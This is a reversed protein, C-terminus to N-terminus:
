VAAIRRCRLSACCVIVCCMIIVCECPLSGGVGYCMYDNLYQPRRRERVPRTHERRQDTDSEPFDIDDVDDLFNGDCSTVEVKKFRSINRTINRRGNTSTIMDGKRKIVTEVDPYFPPEMGKPNRNSLLVKDGEEIDSEKVQRRKDTYSKMKEKSDKDKGELDNTKTQLLSPIETHINKGYLAQAPAIGTSSHPTARYQKLFQWLGQKWNKGQATSTHICKKLTRMFREVEGNAEPWEPTVKRHRFGTNLAFERFEKSQFPPGNDSKLVEPNGHTAFIKELALITVKASTSHVIEVAPYRSHDDVVVLLYENSNPIDKFDASVEKWPSDPCKTPKLPQRRKMPTASQCPMCNRVETEAMKDLGPFWVKSRLLNKTKEIGQHGIHALKITQDRLPEPIVIRGSRLIVGEVFSLEHRVNYFSKMEPDTSKQLSHLQNSNMLKCLEQLKSDKETHNRIEELSLAKPRASELVFNVYEETQSEDMSKSSIPHRSMFDAPNDKGPSYKVKINYEQLYILWREIRPPPKSRANQFIAELPKHDTIVLVPKGYIYLRFHTCAWKIALAERETQSYRREVDSLSRSAYAITKDEQCLVAGLGVPSADAIITSEKNPDFFAMVSPSILNDKLKQFANEQAKGWKFRIGKKTLDRLPAAITALNPIFRAVYNVMGLFSRVGSADKPREVDRIAQAKKQDIQVGEATLIHGAFEIKKKLFECKRRNLTLNRDRLRKLVEKLVETHDKINGKSFLLIDDSLNIVGSIGSIAQSVANQFIESASNIGFSLRKYRRLGLHTSFVTINRSEDDLELQHYGDNLDLKSFWKAGSVEALLENMTPTIHREREIAKNVARMDVCMRIAEPNKPKPVCVIPSVWPTPGTVEEIVDKQELEEIKQKVRDRLNFPIRRHPQAVPKVKADIHLHVKFDSLKGLGKFRDQNQRLLEQIADSEEKIEEVSAVSINPQYLGLDIATQRSMLNGSNEKDVVFIEAKYTHSDSTKMEAQFSGMIPLPRTCGYPILKIKSKHLTPRHKLKQYTGRDIINRKTGTDLIMNINTRCLRVSIRDVEKAKPNVAFVDEGSEASQGDEGDVANVSAAKKPSNKSHCVKAFHNQKKCFSCTKGRAPCNGDAHPFNGGCFWCNRTKGPNQSVTGTQGSQKASETKKSQKPKKASQKKKTQHKENSDNTKLHNVTEGARFGNGSKEMCEAQTRSLEMSKALKLIEDLTKGPEQLVKRRLSTSRCGQVIQTRIEKDADTFGCDKALHRLRVQFQDVTEQSDQVARRFQYIMFDANTHPRVYADFAAIAGDCTDGVNPLNDLIQEFEDGAYYILIAKKQSQNAIGLATMLNNFGRKWRDWREKLNTSDQSLDFPRYPPLATLVAPDGM